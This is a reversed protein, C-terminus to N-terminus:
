LLQYIKGPKCLVLNNMEMMLLAQAVASSNLGSKLYIEDIPVGDEANLINVITKENATLEVFLARQKKTVLKQPKWNMFNLLDEASTILEAKNNRILFNCGESKLDTVKGPLAFVDKNYSNALEATIISGGKKSSEIVIIADCMGAVIRNRRPFNQRDPITRSPFETLLGGNKLIDKALQTNASPYVRDLGHALVAITHLKNKLAAKHAISDIGYALGSIILIDENKLDTTLKECIQKGYDSHNRTGVISVIKSANLNGNGKYYLLTPSDYCNLLRKPYNKDTLFLTQIKHKEIFSIEAECSKFDTYAKICKARVTGIGDLKELEQLSAKFIASACGYKEILAKAHVLGINPTCTLAIQYLLENM